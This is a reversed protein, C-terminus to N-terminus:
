AAPLWQEMFRVSGSFVREADHDLTAVHYSNHLVEVECHGAVGTRILEANHPEVVHDIRSRFVLVPQTVRGLAPTVHGWMTVVEGLARMPIWRYNLEKVGRKKIDGLGSPVAPITRALWPLVTKAGPLRSDVSPNVLVTGALDEGHEAALRLVLGGGLSLGMAFVVDHTARLELFAEEVATYWDRWTTRNADRWHTGHGPLRPASVDFGAGSLWEGWARVTYPTGTFGHCLVVGARTGGSLRFPEAGVMVPGDTM